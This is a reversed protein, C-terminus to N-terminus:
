EEAEPTGSDEPTTLLWDDFRTSLAELNDAWYNWNQVFQISRNLPSSPLVLARDDPILAFAGSNVPGFPVLLGFNAQPIARTAYNIFDMAVDRNPAGRPVVWADASLMGGYWQIRVENELGLQWPRVNWGSAMGVQQAIVLEIPQKGDEYWVLVHDRILDLSAFAREVDLPYLESTAVGDALLAFELNGVPTHRLARLIMPDPEEDETLPPVDWFDSWSLPANTSDPPYVMVTSFYAAGVGYQLVIDEYLQSKDVVAYDIAELYNDRALTLVDEVPMTLVDWSVADQDVQEQLRDTDAIKIQIAAGTAAAFPDFLADEQADQYDGGRGAIALTRGAWKEPDAYGPVQDTIPAYTPAPSPEQTPTVTPTTAVDPDDSDGGCGSLLAGTGLVAFCGFAGRRSLRFRGIHVTQCM